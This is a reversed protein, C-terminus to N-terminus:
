TTSSICISVLAAVPGLVDLHAEIGIVKLTVGMFNVGVLNNKLCALLCGNLQICVLIQNVALQGTDADADEATGLPVGLDGITYIVSVRNGNGTDPQLATLGTGKIQAFRYADASGTIGTIGHGVAVALSYNAAGNNDAVAEAIVAM